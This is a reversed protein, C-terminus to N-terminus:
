RKAKRSIIAKRKARRKARKQEAKGIAQYDDKTLQRPEPDPEGWGMGINDGPLQYIHHEPMLAMALLSIMTAKSELNTKKVNEVM